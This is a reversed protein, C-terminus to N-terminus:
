SSMSDSPPSRYEYYLNKRYPPSSIHLEAEVGWSEHKTYVYVAIFLSIIPKYEEGGQMESFCKCHVFSHSITNQEYGLGGSVSFLPVGKVKM